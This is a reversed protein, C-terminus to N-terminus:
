SIAICTMIIMTITIMEAPHTLLIYIVIAIALCNHINHEIKFYKSPKTTFSNRAKRKNLSSLVESQFTHCDNNGKNANHRKLLTQFHRM